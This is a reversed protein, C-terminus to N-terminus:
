TRLRFFGDPDYQERVRILRGLNDGYYARGADALGPDPFNPYV